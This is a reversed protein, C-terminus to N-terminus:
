STSSSVSRLQSAASDRHSDIADLSSPHSPKSESNGSSKKRLSHPLCGASAAFSARFSSSGCRNKSARSGSCPPSFSFIRTAMTGRNSPVSRVAKSCCYSAAPCSSSSRPSTNTECAFVPATSSRFPKGAWAPITKPEIRVLISSNGADHRPATRSCTKGMMALVLGSSVSSQIASWCM